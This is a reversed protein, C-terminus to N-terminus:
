TPPDLLWEAPLELCAPEGGLGLGDGRARHAPQPVRPHLKVRSSEPAASRRARAARIM